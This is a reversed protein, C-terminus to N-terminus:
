SLQGTLEKERWFRDAWWVEADQQGGDAQWAGRRCRTRGAPARRRGALREQLRSHARSARAAQLASRGRERCAVTSRLDVALSRVLHASKAAWAAFSDLRARAHDDRHRNIRLQLDVGVAPRAAWVAQQWAASVCAMRRVCEQDALQAFVGWGDSHEM